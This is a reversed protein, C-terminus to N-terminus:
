GNTRLNLRLNYRNLALTALKKKTKGNSHLVFGARRQVVYPVLPPNMALRWPANRESRGIRFLISVSSFVHRQSSDQFRRSVNLGSGVMKLTETTGKPVKAM